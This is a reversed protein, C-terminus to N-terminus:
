LASALQAHVHAVDVGFTSLLQAVEGHGVHTLAHLLHLGYVEDARREAAFAVAMELAAHADAHMPLEERGADFHPPSLREAFDAYFREVDWGGAGKLFHLPPGGGRVLGTFVVDM